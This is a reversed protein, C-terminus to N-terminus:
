LRRNNTSMNARVSPFAWSSSKTRMTFQLEVLAIMQTSVWLVHRPTDWHVVYNSRRFFICLYKYKSLTGDARIRFPGNPGAWAIMTFSLPAQYVILDMLNLFHSSALVFHLGCIIVSKDSKRYGVHFSLINCVLPLSLTLVYRPVDTAILAVLAIIENATTQVRELADRTSPLKEARRTSRLPVYPSEPPSCAFLAERLRDLAIDLTSANAELLSV